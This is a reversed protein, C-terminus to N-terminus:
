NVSRLSLAHRKMKGIMQTLEPQSDEDRRSDRGRDGSDDRERAKERETEQEKEKEKEKDKDRNWFKRKEKKEVHDRNFDRHGHDSQTYREVSVYHEEPNSRSNSSNIDARPPDLSWLIGSAIPSSPPSPEKKLTGSQPPHDKQQGPRSSIMSTNTMVPSPYRGPPPMPNSYHPPLAGPPLSNFSSRSVPMGLPLPNHLHGQEPHPTLADWPDEDGQAKFISQPPPLVQNAYVAHKRHIPNM